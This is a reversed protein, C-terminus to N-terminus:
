ESSALDLEISSDEFAIEAISGATGGTDDEVRIRVTVDVTAIVEAHGEADLYHENVEGSVSVWDPLHYADGRFVAWSLLCESIFTAQYRLLGGGWDEPGSLELAAPEGYMSILATHNDEPISPDSVERWSLLEAGNAQVFDHVEAGIADFSLNAQVDQWNQDAEWKAVSPKLKASKILEEITSFAEVGEIESAAERQRKDASVFLVEAEQSSLERVAAMIHADPLDSRHKVQKSPLNGRFYDSWAVQCQDFTMPLSQFGNQEMYTSAYKQSSEEWSIDDLAAILNEANTILSKPLVLESCFDSLAKESQAANARHHERWQTRFEELALQPVFVRM